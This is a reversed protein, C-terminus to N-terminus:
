KAQWTTYFQDLNCLCLCRVAYNQVAIRWLFAPVLLNAIIDFYIDM